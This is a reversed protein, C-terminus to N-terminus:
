RLRLTAALFLDCLIDVDQIHVVALGDDGRAVVGVCGGFNVEFLAM